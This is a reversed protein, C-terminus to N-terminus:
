VSIAELRIVSTAREDREVEKTAFSDFTGM